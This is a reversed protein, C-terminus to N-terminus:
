HTCWKSFCVVQIEMIWSLFLVNARDKLIGTHVGRQDLGETERGSTVGGRFTVYDEEHKEKHSLTYVCMCTYM